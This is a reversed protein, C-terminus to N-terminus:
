EVRLAVMPDVKTARRAPLYSAIVAVTAFAVAVAVFTAPDRPEIGFLMSQLYRAGAIAGAIGISIGVAALAMGRRLIMALVQRREAGLAIRVGIEQTRQVVAYALVGYIGIAALLGAVAAFIGLLVAYFRQRATSYGVMEDMTHIADISASADVARVVERISPIVALPNGRTKVGFSMFGFTIQEIRGKGFKMREHVARVQRYDMFVEAYAPMAVRGQRIDEVVGVIQLPVEVRQLSQDLGDGIRWIVSGGVPNTEGFFRRAVTRNIIATYPGAVGDREDLYRGSLLPVGMSELYGPSLSKLRPKSPADEAQMEEFTRGPPVFTGVTDQLGLLIGGYAFGAHEV